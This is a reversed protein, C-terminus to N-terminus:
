FLHLYLLSYNYKIIRFCFYIYIHIKYYLRPLDEYSKTHKTFLKSNTNYDNGDMAYRDESHGCM